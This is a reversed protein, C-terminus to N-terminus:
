IVASTSEKKEKETEKRKRKRKRKKQVLPKKGQNLPLNRNSVLSAADHFVGKTSSLSHFFHRPTQFNTTTCAACAQELSPDLL